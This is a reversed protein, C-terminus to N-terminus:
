APWTKEMEELFDVALGSEIVVFNLDKERALAVSIKQMHDILKETSVQSLDRAAFEAKLRMLMNGLMEVRAGAHLQMQCRLSDMEIAKLNAIETQLDRSWNILTQKSVQLEMAIDMYSKGLARLEVFRRKTDTDKM